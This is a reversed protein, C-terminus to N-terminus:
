HRRFWLATILFGSSIEYDATKDWKRHVCSTLALRILDLKDGWHFIIEAIFHLHHDSWQFSLDCRELMQLDFTVLQRHTKISRLESPRSSIGCTFLYQVSAEYLPLLEPVEHSVQRATRLFRRRFLNLEDLSRPQGAPVQCSCGPPAAM